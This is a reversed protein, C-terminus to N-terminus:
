TRAAWYPGDNQSIIDWFPKNETDTSHYSLLPWGDSGRGTVMMTHDPADTEGYGDIEMQMVDSILLDELYEMFTVRGGYNNEYINWNTAGGWTYSHVPNCDNCRWYWVDYDDHNWAVAPYDQSGDEAYRGTWLAWSIFTTCDNTDRKYSVAHDTAYYLAFDVMAQYNYPPGEGGLPRVVDDPMPLPRDTPRGARSTAGM